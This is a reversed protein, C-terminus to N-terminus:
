RIFEAERLWNVVMAYWASQRPNTLVLTTKMGTKPHPANVYVQCGFCKMEGNTQRTATPYIAVEIGYVQYLEKLYPGVWYKQWYPGAFHENLPIDMLAVKLLERPKIDGVPEFVWTPEISSVNAPSGTTAGASFRKNIPMTVAGNM